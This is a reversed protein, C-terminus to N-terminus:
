ARHTDHGAQGAGRERNYDDYMRGVHIASFAIMGGMVVAGVLVM